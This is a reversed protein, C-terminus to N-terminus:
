LTLKLTLKIHLLIFRLEDAQGSNMNCLLNNFVLRILNTTFHLHLKNVICNTLILEQNYKNVSSRM